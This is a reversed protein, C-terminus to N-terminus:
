LFCDYKKEAIIKSSQGARETGEHSVAEANRSNDFCSTQKGAGTWVDKKSYERCPEM